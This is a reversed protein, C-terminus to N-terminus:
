HHRHHRHPRHEEGTQTQLAETVQQLPSLLGKNSLYGDFDFAITNDHNFAARFEAHERKINQLNQRIDRVQSHAERQLRIVQNLRQQQESDITQDTGVELEQRQTICGELNNQAGILLEQYRKIKENQECMEIIEAASKLNNFCKFKLLGQIRQNECLRKRDEIRKKNEELRKVETELSKIENLLQRVKEKAQEKLSGDVLEAESIIQLSLERLERIKGSIQSISNDFGRIQSDTRHYVAFLINVMRRQLVEPSSNSFSIIDRDAKEIDTTVSTAEVNRSADLLEQTGRIKGNVQGLLGNLRTESTSQVAEAHGQLSTFELSVMQTSEADTQVNGTQTNTTRGRRRFARKISGWIGM